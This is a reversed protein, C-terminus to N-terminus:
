LGHCVTAFRDRLGEIVVRAIRVFNLSVCIPGKTEEVARDYLSPVVSERTPQRRVWYADNSVNHYMSKSGVLPAHGVLDACFLLM